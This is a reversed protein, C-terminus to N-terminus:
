IIKIGTLMLEDRSISKLIRNLKGSGSEHVSPMLRKQVFLPSLRLAVSRVSLGSLVAPNSVMTM